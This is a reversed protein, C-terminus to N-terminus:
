NANQEHFIDPGTIMRRPFTAALEQVRATTSGHVGEEGFVAKLHSEGNM